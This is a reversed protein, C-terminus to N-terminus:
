QLSRFHIWCAIALVVLAAGAILLYREPRSSVFADRTWAISDLTVNVFAEAIKLPVAPFCIVLLVALMMLVSFAVLPWSVATFGLWIFSAGAALTIALGIIQILHPKM